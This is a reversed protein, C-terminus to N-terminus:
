QPRVPAADTLIRAGAPWDPRDRFLALQMDVEIGYPALRPALAAARTQLTQADPLADRAAIVVRNSSRLNYFRGFVAAYTSSEQAYLGSATFTNAALIGGPALLERASTLFERTLLHPPIYTVDFADLMVLDYREGRALAQEVFARGDAVHIRQRPGQAYGFYQSAVKVVGPDIEVTDVVADPLVDAVAGSLTGGGLGIILVRRPDPHAFLASMMMRTYPFVMREPTALNQCTQRGAARVAGFTMCREGNEEYVVIPSFTSPEVHM